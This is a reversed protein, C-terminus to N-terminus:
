KTASITRSPLNGGKELENNRSFNQVFWACVDAPQDDRAENQEIGHQQEEGKGGYKAKGFEMILLVLVDEERDRDVM